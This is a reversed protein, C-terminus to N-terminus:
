LRLQRPTTMDDIRKVLGHKTIEEDSMPVAVGSRITDTAQTRDLIDYEPNAQGCLQAILARDAYGLRNIGTKKM